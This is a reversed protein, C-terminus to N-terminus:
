KRAVLAQLLSPIPAGKEIFEDVGAQSAKHRAAEDAHITLAIVRCDPWRTKIQHTAEYGDMIPMELDMLIVDPRLVAAQKIAEQGNAAEGAIELDGLLPLLTRLDQRVQSTDDVILVRMSNM